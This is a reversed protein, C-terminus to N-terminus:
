ASRGVGRRLADLWRAAAMIPGDRYTNGVRRPEGVDISHNVAAIMLADLCERETQSPKRFIPNIM